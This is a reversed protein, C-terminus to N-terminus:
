RVIVTVPNDTKMYREAVKQVDSLTVKKLNLLFESDYMINKHFYESHGLYYGKNISSLRRFMMRGLYMNISKQLNREDFSDIVEQSFFGPAQELIPDINVPRTGLNIFFLAKNGVLDIGAKMRYARGQKERVEFIIHDSLLLGLARLEPKDAKDITKVYGWFLFSREGGKEIEKRIPQTGEKLPRFYPEEVINLNQFAKKADWPLLNFVNQPKQPSVVSIIMNSPHFYNQAFQTLKDYDLPEPNISYKEEAYILSNYTKEFVKSSQSSGMGMMPRKSKALAKQYESKSPIFGKLQDKLYNIVGPVDDALGEVRIYSFDPDLYINDM